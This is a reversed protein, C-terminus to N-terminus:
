ENELEEKKKSAKATAIAKAIFDIVSSQGLRYTTEREAELGGQVFQNTDFVQILQELVKRGSKNYEFTRVYDIPEAREEFVARIYDKAVGSGSKTERYAKIMIGIFCVTCIILISLVLFEIIHM